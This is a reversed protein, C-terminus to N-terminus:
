RQCYWSTMVMVATGASDIEVLRGIVGIKLGPPLQSTFSRRRMKSDVCARSSSKSAASQGDVTISPLMKPILTAATTSIIWLIADGSHLRSVGHRMKWRNLRRTGRECNMPRSNLRLVRQRRKVLCPSTWRSSRPRQETMVVVEGGTFDALRDRM